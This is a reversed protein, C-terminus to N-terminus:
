SRYSKGMELSAQNGVKNYHEMENECEQVEERFRSRKRRSWRRLEEACGGLRDSIEMGINPGRGVEVVDQIDQELLCKNEFKFSYRYCHRETPDTHLIIPNHDSHSAMLNLLRTNLFLELWQTKAMARDLREKIMHPTGISKTWTFQYGEISIDTLNFEEVANHFENCMWNPHSHIGRKDEQSLM